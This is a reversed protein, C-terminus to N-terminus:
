ERSASCLQPAARSSKLARPNSLGLREYKRYISGVGPAGSAFQYEEPLPPYVVAYESM